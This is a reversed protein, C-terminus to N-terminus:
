QTLSKIRKMDALTARRNIIMRGRADKMIYRGDRIEESMGDAHRVGIRTTDRGLAAGGDGAGTSSGRANGGSSKENGSKGGGNGGSNGGGNGGGNGNGGSNGNGGGNGNNDGSKAFAEQPVLQLRQGGPDLTYPFAVASLCVATSCAAALFKRRTHM